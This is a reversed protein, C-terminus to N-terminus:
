TLRATSYTSSSLSRPSRRRADVWDILPTSSIDCRRIVGDVLDLGKHVAGPDFEGSAALIRAELVDLENRIVSDEAHGRAASSVSLAERLTSESHSAPSMVFTELLWQARIMEIQGLGRSNGTATYGRHASALHEDALAFAWGTDQFTHGMYAVALLHHARSWLPRTDEEDLVSLATTLADVALARNEHREGHRRDLYLEGLAVRIAGEAAAPFSDHYARLEGEVFAITNEIAMAPNPFALTRRTLADLVDPWVSETPPTLALLSTLLLASRAQGEPTQLFTGLQSVLM